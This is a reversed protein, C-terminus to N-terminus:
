GLILEYIIILTNFVILPVACTRYNIGTDARVYMRLLKIRQTVLGM